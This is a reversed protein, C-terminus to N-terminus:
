FEPSDWFAYVKELISSNDLIFVNSGNLTLKKKKKIAPAESVGLLFFKVNKNKNNNLIQSLTSMKNIILWLILLLWGFVKIINKYM